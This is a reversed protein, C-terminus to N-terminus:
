EKPSRLVHGVLSGFLFLSLAVITGFTTALGAWPDTPDYEATVFTLIILSIFGLSSLFLYRCFIRCITGSFFIYAFIAIAVVQGNAFEVDFFNIAHSLALIFFGLFAGLLLSIIKNNPM